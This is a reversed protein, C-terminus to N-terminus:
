NEITKLQEVYEPYFNFPEINLIRLKAQEDTKGNMILNHYMVKMINRIAEHDAGEFPYSHPKINENEHLTILPVPVTEEIFKLVNEIESKLDNSKILLETLLPHKRNLKYFRKGHRM